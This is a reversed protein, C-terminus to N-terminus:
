EHKIEPVAELVRDVIICFLIAATGRTMVSLLRLGTIYEPKGADM